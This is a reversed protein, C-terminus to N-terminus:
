VKSADKIADWVHQAHVKEKTRGQVGRRFPRLKAYRYAM